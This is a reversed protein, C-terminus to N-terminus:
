RAPTAPTEGKPIIYVSAAQPLKGGKHEVEFACIPLQSLGVDKFMKELDGDVAMALESGISYVALADPRDNPDV